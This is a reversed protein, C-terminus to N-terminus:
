RRGFRNGRSAKRMALKRCHGTLKGRVRYRMPKDPKKPKPKQPIDAYAHDPYDLSALRTRLSADSIKLNRAAHGISRYEVGAVSCPIPLRRRKEKTHYESVYEPFNSSCLRGRLTHFRIKLTKAASQKPNMYSGKLLAPNKQSWQEKKPKPPPTSTPQGPPNKKPKDNLTNQWGCCKLLNNSFGHLHCHRYSVVFIGM